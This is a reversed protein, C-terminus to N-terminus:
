NPFRAVMVSVDIAETKGPGWRSWAVGNPLVTALMGRHHHSGEDVFIAYGVDAQGQEVCTRVKEIDTVIGHDGPLLHTWHSHKLPEVIDLRSPSPEFKVEVVALVRQKADVIALDVTPKGRPKLRHQNRITLRAGKAIILRRVYNWIVSVLDAENWCPHDEYHERLWLITEDILRVADNM